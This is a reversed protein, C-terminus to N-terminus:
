FVEELHRIDLMRGDRALIVEIVDFQVPVDTAGNAKLFCLAVQRITKQKKHSVAEAPTGYANGTRTKVEIFRLQDQMSIILDIEGLRGVRYNAALVQCGKKQLFELAMREGLRGIEKRDM